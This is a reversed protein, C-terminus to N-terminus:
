AMRRAAINMGTLTESLREQMRIFDSGYFYFVTRHDQRAWGRFVGQGKLAEVCVKAVDRRSDADPAFTSDVSLELGETTGFVTPIGGEALRISSGCPAHLRNLIAAVAELGKRSPDTLGLTIEVGTFVGPDRETARCGTVIGMNLAAMQRGLPVAFVSEADRHGLRVPLHVEALTVDLVVGKKPKLDRFFM